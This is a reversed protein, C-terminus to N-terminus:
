TVPMERLTVHKITQQKYTRFYDNGAIGHQVARRGPRGLNEWGGGHQWAEVDVRKQLVVIATFSVLTLWRYGVGKGDIIM